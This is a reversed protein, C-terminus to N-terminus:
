RPPSRPGMLFSLSTVGGARSRALRCERQVRPLWVRVVAPRVVVVFGSFVDGPAAIFYFSYFCFPLFSPLSRLPVRQPALSSRAPPLVMFWSPAREAKRRTHPSCVSCPFRSGPGLCCVATGGGIERGGLSENGTAAAAVRGRDGFDCALAHGPTPM